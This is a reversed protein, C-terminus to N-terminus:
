QARGSLLSIIKEVKRVIFYSHTSYAIRFLLHPKYSMNKYANQFEYSRLISNNMNYKERNLMTNKINFTNRMIVEYKFFFANYMKQIQERGCHWKKVYYSITKNIKKYIDILNDYYKNALSNADAVYYFYTHVNIVVIDGKTCDLYEYNFILDEGLSLSESFHIHNKVIINRTYLKCYPGSDLWKEHLTMIDKVSYTSKEGNSTVNGTKVNYSEVTQFGCWINDCQPNNKKAVILNNLYNPAVYDDSDVFCIYKGKAADIGCNRASSVGGNEKHIVKIRNDKKAYEDCIKGSNDPSGDDVLILEFDKYIQNLISDICYHLVNEVKYVPVIVSILSINIVVM